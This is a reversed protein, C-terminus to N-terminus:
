ASGFVWRQTCSSALGSFLLQEAGCGL